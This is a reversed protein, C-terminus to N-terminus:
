WEGDCCLDEADHCVHCESTRGKEHAGSPGSYSTRREAPVTACSLLLFFLITLIAAKKM